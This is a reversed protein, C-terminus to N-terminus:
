AGLELLSAATDKVCEELSRFEIGLIDKSRSNNYGYVNAPFDDVANEPLLSTLKPHTQRIVDCIRKNSCHGAVVFFRKNGAEPVQIAKMHALAVDRVDVWLFTGTPPLAQMSYRGQIFDRIRQNSTNLNNLTSLHHKLPGYVLPPCITTVDFGPKETNLFDWAAKEAFTKSGRYAKTRETVAEDWTVPNWSTEDYIKPPRAPNVIAAFSSTIVVRKCTPAYAKIAQLINKTGNIAPKLLGEVPDAFNDHFPSATHIVHSFPIGRRFVHEFAKPNTIDSVVLYSLKGNSIDAHSTLVHNGKAPSRVTTVVTYGDRLLTRITHAAIFGSGGTVLVISM